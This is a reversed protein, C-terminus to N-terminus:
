RWPPSWAALAATDPLYLPHGPHGSRTRGLALLEVGGLVQDVVVRARANAKPHAGWGVVVPGGRAAAEALWGRNEGIEAPDEWTLRPGTEWRYSLLFRRRRDRSFWAVMKTPGLRWVGATEIAEATSRTM